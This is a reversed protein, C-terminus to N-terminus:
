PSGGLFANHAIYTICCRAVNQGTIMLHDGIVNDRQNRVDSAGKTEKNAEGEICKPINKFIQSNKDFVKDFLPDHM